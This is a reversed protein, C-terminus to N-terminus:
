GSRTATRTSCPLSSRRRGGTASRTMWNRTRLGCGPLFVAGIMHGNQPSYVELSRVQEDKVEPVYLLPGSFLLDIRVGNLPRKGARDKAKRSSKATTEPASKKTKFAPM